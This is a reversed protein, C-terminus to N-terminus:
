RVEQFDLFDTTNRDAPQRIAQLLPYAETARQRHLWLQKQKVFGHGPHVEFFFLVHRTEHEVHVIVIAGRDCQDLVIHAHHHIQRVAYHHEIVAVLDGFASM